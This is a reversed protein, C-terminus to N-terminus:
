TTSRRKALTRKDPVQDSEDVIESGLIEELIDELSVVGSIGGYEDLVVFLHQRLQLFETLVKNLPATEVVFHVPHMLDELRSEKRDAAFAMFLEKTLVIGVIDESGHDYVPFRSHEWRKEQSCVEEVTLHAGLSFVVTRPTMVHRVQKEHLTLIREITAEQYGKIGGCQRSLRALTRIEDATVIDAIKGKSVWHTLLSSVWIFPATVVVMSRIIYGCFAGISRGYVVGITKPLIESLTLVLITFVASFWGLYAQGFVAAAASGAFAAGATHAITNVSLIAAIPADPEARLDRFVRWHRSGSQVKAEIFRRPVSLLVAEFVSCGGSVILVFLVILVLELM